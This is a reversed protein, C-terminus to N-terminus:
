DWKYNRDKGHLRKELIWSVPSLLRSLTEFPLAGKLLEARFKFDFENTNWYYSGDGSLAVFGGDSKISDTKFHDKDFVYESDITTISGLSQLSWAKGLFKLFEGFLPISWLDAGSINLKGKGDMLLRGEADYYIKSAMDSSLKGPKGAAVADGWGLQKILPLMEADQIKLAVDGSLTKFNFSYDANLRGSCLEAEAGKFSLNRDKYLLTADINTVSVGKWACSGNQIKAVFSSAEPRKYDISGKAAAQVSKPFDIYESSWKPYFCRIIDDGSIASELEFDLRGEPPPSADESSDDSGDARLPRVYRKAGGGKYCISILAQGEKTELLAGPLILLRDSDLIFRTAGYKFKIGRYEFDTMVLSGTMFCFPNSGYKYHLDISSEILNGALPWDIDKIVSKLFSRQEPGLLSLTREPSGLCILSASLVKSAPNCLMEGSLRTGDDLTAHVDSLSITDGSFDLHSSLMKVELDKFCIQPALIDFSGSFSGRKPETSKLVGSFSVLKDDSLMRVNDDVFSRAAPALFKRATDFNSSGEIRCELCEKSFRFDGEIEGDGDVEAGSLRGSILSDDVSASGTLKRFPVGNFSVFPVNFEAAGKYRGSSLSLSQLSGKFAILEDGFKFKANVRRRSAEDLFLLLKSASCLGTVEGSVSNSSTDCLGGAEIFEGGGLDVRVDRLELIGDKLTLEQKLSGIKLHGYEFSPISVDAKVSSRRYDALDLSFSLKCRPPGSFQESKLRDIARMLRRRFQVPVKSAFPVSVAHPQGSPSAKGSAQRPKPPAAASPQRAQSSSVALKDHIVEGGKAGAVSLLHEVTGSMMFEFGHFRGSANEVIVKGNSVSVSGNFDSIQLCDSAGEEGSEPFVPASLSGKEISFSFPLYNGDFLRVPSVSARILAAQFCPSEYKPGLDIRVEELIAGNVLGCKFRGLSLAVGEAALRSKIRSVVFSPLGHTELRWDAAALLIAAAAALALLVCLKRSPLGSPSSDKAEEEM